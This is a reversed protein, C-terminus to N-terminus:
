EQKWGLRINHPYHYSLHIIFQNLKKIWQLGLMVIKALFFFNIEFYKGKYPDYGWNTKVNQHFKAGFLINSRTTNLM